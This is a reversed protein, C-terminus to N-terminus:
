INTLDLLRKKFYDEFSRNFTILYKEKLNYISCDIRSILTQAMTFKPFKRNRFDFNTLKNLFQNKNEGSVELYIQGYSYDTALIEDNSNLNSIIQLVKKYDYDYLFILSWQDFSNKALIYKESSVIDLNTNSPLISIEKNLFDKFKDKGDGRILIQLYKKEEIEIGKTSLIKKM